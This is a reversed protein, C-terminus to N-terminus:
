EAQLELRRMPGIISIQCFDVFLRCTGTKIKNNKLSSFSGVGGSSGLKCGKQGAALLRASVCVSTFAFAPVSDAREIPRTTM